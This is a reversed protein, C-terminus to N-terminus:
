AGPMDFTFYGRSYGGGPFGFCVVPPDSLTGPDPLVVTARTRLSESLGAAETVDITLDTEM